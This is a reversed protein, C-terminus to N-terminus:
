IETKISIYCFLWIEFSFYIIVFHTNIASCIMIQHNNQQGDLSRLLITNKWFAFVSVTQTSLLYLPAPGEVNVTGQIVVTMAVDHPLLPAGRRNLLLAGLHVSTSQVTQKMRRYSGESSIIRRVIQRKQRDAEESSLSFIWDIYM